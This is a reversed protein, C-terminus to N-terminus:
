FPRALVESPPLARGLADRLEAELREIVDHSLDSLYTAKVHGTVNLWLGPEYRNARAEVVADRPWRTVAIEGTAPDCLTMTLQGHTVEFVARPPNRIGLCRRVALTCAWWVPVVILSVLDAHTLWDPVPAFLGPMPVIIRTVGDDREVLVPPKAGHYDLQRKM